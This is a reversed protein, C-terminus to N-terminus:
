PLNDVALEEINTNECFYLAGHRVKRDQQIQAVYMDEPSFVSLRVSGPCKFYWVICRFFVSDKIPIRWLM